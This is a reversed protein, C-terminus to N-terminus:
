RKGGKRGRKESVTKPMIYLTRINEDLRLSVRRKVEPYFWLWGYLNQMISKPVSLSSYYLSITSPLPGALLQTLIDTMGYNNLHATIRNLDRM